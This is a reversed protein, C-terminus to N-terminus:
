QAQSRFRFDATTILMPTGGGHTKETARCIVVVGLQRREVVVINRWIGYERVRSDFALFYCILVQHSTNALLLATVGFDL